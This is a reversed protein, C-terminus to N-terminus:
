LSVAMVAMVFGWLRVACGNCVRVPWRLGWLGVCSDCVRVAVVCGDCIRM